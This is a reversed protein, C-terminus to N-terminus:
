DHFIDQHLWHKINWRGTIDFLHHNISVDDIVAGRWQNNMGFPRLPCCLACLRETPKHTQVTSLQDHLGWIEILRHM